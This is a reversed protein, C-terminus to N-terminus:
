GKRLLILGLVAVVGVGGAVYLMTKDNGANVTPAAGPSTGTTAASAAAVDAATGAPTAVQAGTRVQQVLALANTTTASQIAGANVPTNSARAQCIGTYMASTVGLIVSSALAAKQGATLTSTTPTPSPTPTTAAPLAAAATQQVQSGIQGSAFATSVGAGAAITAQAVQAGTSTCGDGLGGRLSGMGGADLDSRGFSLALPGSLGGMGSISARAVRPLADRAGTRVERATGSGQAQGGPPFGPGFRRETVGVYSPAWQRGVQDAVIENVKAQAQVEFARRLQEMREDRVTLEGGGLGAITHVGRASRIRNDLARAYRPHRREARSLADGIATSGLTLQAIPHTM